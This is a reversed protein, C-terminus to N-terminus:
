SVAHLTPLKSYPDEIDPENDTTAEMDSRSQWLFELSEINQRGIEGVSIALKIFDDMDGLRFKTSRYILPLTEARIQRSVKLLSVGDRLPYYFGTPDGIGRSLNVGGLYDANVVKWEDPPIAYSYIRDRLERPLRLFGLGSRPTVKQRLRAVSMTVSAEKKTLQLPLHFGLACHVDASVSYQYQPNRRELLVYNHCGAIRQAVGPEPLMKELSDVSDARRKAQLHEELEKRTQDYTSQPVPSLNSYYRQEDQSGAFSTLGYGLSQEMQALSVFSGCKAM